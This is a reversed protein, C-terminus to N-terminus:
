TELKYMIDEHLLLDCGSVIETSAGNLFVYRKCAYDAEFSVLANGPVGYLTLRATVM